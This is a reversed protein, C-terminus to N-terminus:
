ENDFIHLEKGLKEADLFYKPYSKKHSCFYTLLAYFDEYIYKESKKEILDQRENQNEESLLAEAYYELSKTNKDAETYNYLACLRGYISAQTYKIHELSIKLKENFRQKLIVEVDHRALDVYKAAIEIESIEDPCLWFISKARQHKFQPNVNMVHEMGEYIFKILKIVSNNNQYFVDNLVDFKIFGLMIRPSEFQSEASSIRTYIYQYALLISEFNEEKRAYEGLYKLLFYRSNSSFKYNSDINSLKYQYYNVGFHIPFEEALQDAEKRLEFYFLDYFSLTQETALLILLALTETKRSVSFNSLKYPNSEESFSDSIMCLNDLITRMPYIYKRKYKLYIRERNLFTPLNNLQLKQNLHELEANTFSNKLRSFGYFKNSTILDLGNRDSSNVAAILFNSNKELEKKSKSLRYIQEPELTNTDFLFLCNSQCYLQELEFDSIKTGSPFFYRTKDKITEYLNILCFTKGAIRHGYIIHVPTSELLQAVIRSVIDRKIFFYPKYIKGEFPVPILMNSNVINKLTTNDGGLEVIEPERYIDVPCKKEKHSAISVLDKYFKDYDSVILCATIGYDELLDKKDEELTSSTIYISQCATRRTKVAEVIISVLDPEDDLSCGVYLLNSNSFDDKLKSLMKTNTKISDIYQRKNFILEEEEINNLYHHVDGHVKFVTSYQKIYEEFINRRPLIVKYESCNNEIGDDINLTYMYQPFLRLFDIKYQPLNVETFNKSFYDFREKLTSRKNYYTCLDAFTSKAYYDLSKGYANAAFQQLHKSMDSGSPVHGDKATCERTFGSGLVPTIKNDAILTVILERISSDSDWYYDVIM